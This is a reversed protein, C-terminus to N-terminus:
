DLERLARRTAFVWLIALAGVVEMGAIVHATTFLHTLSGAILCGVPPLGLFATSYISMVRGRMNDDTLHQLSASITAVMLVMCFGVLMLLAGSLYFSRSFTFCFIAIFSGIGARVVFRGRQKMHRMNAITGAGLFAGVGACAMLVGFGREDTHLVERAFYPIFTLYPIALLSGISVLMVLSSMEERSFIYSFGQKLKLWLRGEGPAAVRTYRIQSLAIIVALFSLGNLFFNGAVGVLAMAFGGLTPGLVRSM